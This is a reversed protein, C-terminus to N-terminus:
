RGRATRARERIGGPGPLFRLNGQRLTAGTRDLFELLDVALNRGIGLADRLDTVTFGSPRTEALRRAAAAAEEITAPTLYRNRSIRVVLGYAAMSELFRELGGPELDLGAALPHLSPASGRSVELAPAVRAWLARDRPGPEARHGPRHHVMGRRELVGGSRLDRLVADVLLPDAPGPLMRALERATPGLRDQRAAHDRDVADVLDGALTKWRREHVVAGRGFTRLGDPLPLRGPELNRSRAFAQPDIGDGSIDLLARFAEGHDERDMARLSALRSARARGRAPGLPDLVRAAGITRRASVDRLLIRDGWAPVLPADVRLQALGRDGPALSAKELLAVRGTVHGTGHHLHVATWHRFPAQESSLIAVEADIRLSPALVDGAAIWDGRGADDHSLGALNIAAREGQVARDGARGQAHLSRVRAERGAPLVTVRDGRRVMGACVTGTVVLGAGSVVFSRDVALRFEGGPTSDPLADAKRELCRRLEDIGTNGPISTVVTGLVGIGHDLVLAASERVVDGIREGDCRDAKTVAIVLHRTGLLSLVAVHERTQPMPGDDAAVALLGLDIRSLGAVMNRVFREHGPVDIFGAIRGSPLPLYAFGLDITLGRRKEDPLRDTDVGTLAAVLSTKGHDVHGATAIIM